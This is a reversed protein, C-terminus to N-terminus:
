VPILRVVVQWKDYLYVFFFLIDLSYTDQDVGAPTNTSTSIYAEQLEVCAPLLGSEDTTNVSIKPIQSDSCSSTIYSSPYSVSNYVHIDNGLGNSGVNSSFVCNTINIPQNEIYIAGGENVATCNTFTCDSIIQPAV